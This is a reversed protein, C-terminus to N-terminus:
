EPSWVQAFLEKMHATRMRDSEALEENNDALNFQELVLRASVATAGDVESTAKFTWIRGETKQVKLSVSLTKGPTVFNNFRVAKAQKLL